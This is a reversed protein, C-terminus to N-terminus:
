ARHQLELSCDMQLQQTLIALWRSVIIEVTSTLTLCASPRLTLSTGLALPRRKLSWLVEEPYRLMKNTMIDAVNDDVNMSSIEDVDWEWHRHSLSWRLLGEEKLSKLFQIVFLPLGSTKTYILDSLPRAQMPTMHLAESILSTVSARYINDVRIEKFTVAGCRRITFLTKHLPHDTTVEIDRYCALLLFTDVDKDLCIAEIVALSFEDAWQVDDLMFAVPHAKSSISKILQRVSFLLRNFSAQGTLDPTHNSISEDVIARLKPITSLLINIESGLSAKLCNKTKELLSGGRRLIKSCLVDLMLFVVPMQKVQQLEDFKADLFFGGVNEVPAKMQIALASKGTGSAGTICLISRSCSSGVLMEFAMDVQALQGERGYLKGDILDLIGVRPPDGAFLYRDPDRCILSLEELVDEATAYHQSQMVGNGDFSVQLLHQILNSLILPFGFESLPVCEGIQVTMKGKKQRNEVTGDPYDIDNKNSDTACPLPQFGAFHEYLREGLMHLYNSDSEELRFVEVVGCAGQVKQLISTSDITPSSFINTADLNTFETRIHGATGDVLPIPEIDEDEKSSKVGDEHSPLTDEQSNGETEELSPSEKDAVMVDLNEEDFSFNFAHDLGVNDSDLGNGDGVASAVNDDGGDIAYAAVLLDDIETSDGFMQEDEARVDPAYKPEIPSGITAREENKASEEYIIVSAGDVKGDKLGKKRCSDLWYNLTNKSSKSKKMQKWEVKMEDSIERCQNFHYRQWNRVTQYVQSTSAPFATHGNAREKDPRHKCHICRIGIQGEVINGSRGGKSFRDSVDRRTAAFYELQGRLFTLSSTLKASDRVDSMPIPSELAAVTAGAGKKAKNAM